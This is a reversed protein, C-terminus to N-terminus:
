IDRFRSHTCRQHYSSIHKHFVSAGPPLLTLIHCFDRLGGNQGQGVGLPCTTDIFHSSGMSSSVTWTQNSYWWGFKLYQVKNTLPVSNRVSPRVFLRVSSGIVLHGGRVKWAPAYFGISSSVTWTQKSYWWGFKLYQVKNTLPVPNHVSLCVFLRVSSGIVVHGRRVKWALPMFINFIYKPTVTRMNSIQKAYVHLVQLDSTACPNTALCCTFRINQVIDRRKMALINSDFDGSSFRYWCFVYRYM